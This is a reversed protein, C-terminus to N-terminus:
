LSSMLLHETAVIGAASVPEGTSAHLADTIQKVNVDWLMKDSRDMHIIKTEGLDKLDDPASGLFTSVLARDDRSM